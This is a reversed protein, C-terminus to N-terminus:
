APNHPRLGKLVKKLQCTPGLAIAACGTGYYKVEGEFSLAVTRKLGSKSCCDCTHRDDSIGLLRPM